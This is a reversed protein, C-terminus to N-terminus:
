INNELVDVLTLDMNALIRCIKIDNNEVGIALGKFLSNFTERLNSDEIKPSLTLWTKQTMDVTQKINEWDIKNQNLLALTKFGMYDLHEIKIQNKILGGDVFNSVNFEFADASELALEKYNNQDILEKLKLIKTNLLKEGEATINKRFLGRAVDEGVEGLSELVKSKNKNLAFETIDEFPSLIEDLNEYVLDDPNIKIEFKAVTTKAPIQDTKKSQCSFTIFIVGLGAVLITRKKM